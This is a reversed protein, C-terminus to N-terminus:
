MAEVRLYAWQKECEPGSDTCPTIEFQRGRRQCMKRVREVNETHITCSLERGTDLQERLIAWEVGLCFVVQPRIGALEDDDIDFPEICEWETHEPEQSM